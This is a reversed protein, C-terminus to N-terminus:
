KVIQKDICDLIYFSFFYICGTFITKAIAIM